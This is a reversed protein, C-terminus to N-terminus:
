ARKRKVEPEEEEEQRLAADLQTRDVAAPWPGGSPTCCSRRPRSAPRAEAEDEGGEEDDDEGEM